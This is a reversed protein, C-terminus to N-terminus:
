DTEVPPVPRILIENVDVHGPQSLAYVVARAIDDPQLAYPPPQDFLPTDVMGPEILTVRVGTGRLEERVSLGMGTVAWKSASYMSGPIVFRGAASGTLLLHGRSAKLAELSCRLTLGVGYVNTLLMERWIEPDAGSFGGESGPMGANAYVADLQGFHALVQEVMAQQEAYEKVDCRIALARERGGLENVLRTLKDESRSALAVRYGAEAALRATAAGIGSSAGTILLVPDSM